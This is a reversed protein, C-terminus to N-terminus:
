FNRNQKEPKKRKKFVIIVSILLVRGDGGGHEVVPLEFAVIAMVTGELGPLECLKM